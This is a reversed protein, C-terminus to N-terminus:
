RRVVHFRFFEPIFYNRSFEVIQGEIDFMTEEILLLARQRKVSLREALYADANVAVIKADVQGIQNENKQRLLDLVSGEFTEDIDATALVAAPAVDFMYAVPTEDATLVRRVGTVATGPKVQLIKALKQDAREEGVELADMALQMGQRAAMDLISELQELGGELHHGYSPAVFTGVGHRRIIAGEQELNLLAERLTARSIGLQAALDNQSPLQEGPQFTGDELLGRLYQHARAALPLKNSRLPQVLNDTM